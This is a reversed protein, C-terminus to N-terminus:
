AAQTHGIKFLKTKACFESKMQTRFPFLIFPFRTSSPPPSPLGKLEEFVHLFCLNFSNEMAYYTEAPM